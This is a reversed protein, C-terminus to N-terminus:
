SRRTELYDVLYMFLKKENNKLVSKKINKEADSLLKKIIKESYELSGSDIILKKIKEIESRSLKSGLKENIYSNNAKIILMTKKGEILDSGIPKGLERETGFVGLIDDRLQFALGLKIGIESLLKIDDKNCGALLAGICIPGSMTYYATKYQHIFQVFNEDVKKVSGIVDMIQGYCCRKIMLIIEKFALLKRKENFHTDLIMEMGFNYGLDGIIIGFVNGIEKCGYNREFIKHLTPGNRRIDDNDMIDDHVLLYSHIIEVSAAVKIIDNCIKGGCGIYSSIVLLGRLRKGGRLTFESFAEVFPLLEPHLKKVELKKFKFFRKLENEIVVKYKTLEEM